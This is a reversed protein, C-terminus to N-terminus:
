VETITIGLLQAMLRKKLKYVPTLFGKVDEVVIKDTVLDHYRFDCVYNLGGKYGLDPAPPLIQFRLQKSVPGILNEREMLELEAARNAEKKSAYKGTRVAGYKSRGNARGM